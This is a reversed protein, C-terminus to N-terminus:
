NVFEFLSISLNIFLLEKICLGEYLVYNQFNLLDFGILM